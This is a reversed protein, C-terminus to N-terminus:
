GRSYNPAYEEFYLNWHFYQKLTYMDFLVLFVNGIMFPVFLPLTFIVLSLGILLSKYDDKEVLMWFGIMFPYSITHFIISLNRLGSEVLHNNM